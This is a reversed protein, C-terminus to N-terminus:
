APRTPEIAGLRNGAPDAFIIYKGENLFPEPPVVVQGGNAEIKQCTEDLNAVELYSVVGAGAADAGYLGVGRKLGCGEVIAYNPTFPVNWFSWSMLDSYFQTAKELNPTAIEVFIFPNVPEHKLRPHGEVFQQWFWVENGWPDLAATFAGSGAVESRTYMVRGGLEKARAAAAECDNVLMLPAVGIPLRPDHMIGIVPMRGADVLTYGPAVQYLGWAFTKRYFDMAVNLDSVRIEIQFVDVGM